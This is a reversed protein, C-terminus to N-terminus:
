TRSSLYTPKSGSSHSFCYGKLVTKGKRMTRLQKGIIEQRRKVSVALQKEGTQMNKIARRVIAALENDMNLAFLDVQNLCQSLRLFVRQQKEQWVPLTKLQNAELLGIHEQQMEAFSTIASDLKKKLEKM